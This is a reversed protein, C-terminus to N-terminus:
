KAEMLMPQDARSDLWHIFSKFHEAIMLPKHRQLTKAPQSGYGVGVRDMGIQEAMALDFVSDGVMLADGVDLGAKELIVELMKPHPKSPLGDCAQTLEFFHQCDSARLSRDLSVQRKGTAVALRIDSQRLRNLGETVGEFLQSPKQELRHHETKYLDFLRDIMADSELPHLTHIAKKLSLGIVGRCADDQAPEIGAQVAATKLASVINPISDSLTGDWDFIILSYPKTM